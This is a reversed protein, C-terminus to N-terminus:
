LQERQTSAASVPEIPQLLWSRGANHLYLTCDTFPAMFSPSLSRAPSTRQEYLNIHYSIIHYSIIHYIIHHSIIHNSTIRHSTPLTPISALMSGSPSVKKLKRRQITIYGALAVLLGWPSLTRKVIPIHPLHRLLTHCRTAHSLPVGVHLYTPTTHHQTSYSTSHSHYYRCDFNTETPSLSIVYIRKILSSGPLVLLWHGLFLITRYHRLLYISTQTLSWTISQLSLWDAIWSLTYNTVIPTHRPSCIRLLRASSM